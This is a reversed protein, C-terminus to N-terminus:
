EKIIRTSLALIVIALTVKIMYYVSATANISSRGGKRVHMVVPVEEVCFGKRLAAVISEPEPYDTPYELSFLEMLERSYARFGSTADSVSGRGFVRILVSLWRIGVRRMFTSKYGEDSNIFRSGIVLDAGADIRNLLLKIEGVPHQGDGDFQVAVDYDNRLAYKYGAQVAGGIGLNACLDLHTFGYEKCIAGTKDVSGDNVVVYDYGADIVSRVVSQIADEENYAPIVVLVRKLIV